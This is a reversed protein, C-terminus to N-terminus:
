GDTGTLNEAQGLVARTCEAMTASVRSIPDTMYFNEIPSKFAADNMEGAQGFDEWSAAAVDNLGYFVPDISAM